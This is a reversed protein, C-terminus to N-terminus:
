QRALKMREWEEIIAKIGAYSIQMEVNRMGADYIYQEAINKLIPLQEQSPLAGNVDLKCFQRGYEDCCTKMMEYLYEYNHFRTAETIGKSKLIEAISKM